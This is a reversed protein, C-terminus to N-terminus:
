VTEVQIFSLSVASPVDILGDKRRDDVQAKRGINGQAQTQRDVQAITVKLQLRIGFSIFSNSVERGESFPSDIALVAPRKIGRAQTQDPARLDPRAVRRERGVRIIGDQANGVGLDRSTMSQVPRQMPGERGVSVVLWDERALARRVQKSVVQRIKKPKGRLLVCGLGM